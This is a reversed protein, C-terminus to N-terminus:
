PADQPAPYLKHLYRAEAADLDPRLAEDFTKRLAHLEPTPGRTATALVAAIPASLLLSQWSLYLAVHELYFANLRDLLTYGLLQDLWRDMYTSPDLVTKIDVLTWGIVIDAKAFGPALVPALVVRKGLQSLPRRGYRLYNAWLHALGNLAPEDQRQQSHLQMFFARRSRAASSGELAHDVDNMLAANLCADLAAHQLDDGEAPNTLRTWDMLLPDTTHSDPLHDYTVPHFGAGRLLAAYDDAPLFSLLDRHGPKDALDLGIRLEIALAVTSRWTDIAIGASPAAHLEHRWQQSILHREPLHTDLFTCLRSTPDAIQNTLSM